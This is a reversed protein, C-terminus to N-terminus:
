VSAGGCVGNRGGAKAAYLARDAERMLRPLTQEACNEAQAAYGISVSLRGLPSGQHEIGLALIAQRTREAAHRAEEATCGPLLVAFEEGGLRAPLEGARQFLERLCQAVAVLCDDGAGHGYRDNYAKFYDVDLMLVALSQGSRTIRRLEESWRLDFARRNALGTLPDCRSLRELESRTAELQHAHRWHGLLSFLMEAAMQQYRREAESVQEPAERLVLLHGGEADTVRYARLDPCGPATCWGNGEWAMVSLEGAECCPPTGPQRWVVRWRWRTEDADRVALGCARAGIYGGLEELAQLLADHYGAAPLHVCRMLTRSLIDLYGNIRQLEATRQEVRQDLLDREASLAAMAADRAEAYRRMGRHLTEFGEVVLDIEDHWRRERRRLDLPLQPRDPSLTSVYRAIRRLPQGLEQRLRWAILLCILTTFVAIELIRQSAAAVIAGRLQNRDAFIQLEGLPQAGGQPHPILIRADPEVSLYSGGASLHVGTASYLVVRAVEPRAAIQELQLELVELEVVWLAHTLLPVHTQGVDELMHQFDARTDRYIELTQLLIALGGCALALWLVWGLLRRRIPLFPTETSM